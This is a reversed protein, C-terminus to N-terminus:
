SQHTGDGGLASEDRETRKWVSRSAGLQLEAQFIGYYKQDIENELLRLDLEGAVSFGQFGFLPFRSDDTTVPPM